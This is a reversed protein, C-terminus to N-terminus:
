MYSKIGEELKELIGTDVELAESVMMPMDSALYGGQLVAQHMIEQFRHADLTYSAFGYYVVPVGDLWSSSDLVRAFTLDKESDIQIDDEDWPVAAAYDMNVDLNFACTRREDLGPGYQNNANLWQGTPGPPHHGVESVNNVMQQLRLYPCNLHAQTARVRVQKGVVDTITVMMMNFQWWYMPTYQTRWQVFQLLDQLKRFLLNQERISRKHLNVM